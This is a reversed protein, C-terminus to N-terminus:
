PRENKQSKFFQVMQMEGWGETWEIKCSNVTFSRRGKVKEREFLQVQKKKNIVYELFIFFRTTKESSLYFLVNQM